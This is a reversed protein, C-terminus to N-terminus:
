IRGYPKLRYRYNPSGDMNFMGDKELAPSRLCIVKATGGSGPEGLNVSGKVVECESTDPDTNLILKVKSEYIRNRDEPSVGKAMRIQVDSKDYFMIYEDSGPSVPTLNAHHACSVLLIMLSLNIYIKMRWGSM